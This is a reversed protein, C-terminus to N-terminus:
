YIWYKERHLPVNNWGIKRVAILRLENKTSNVRIMKTSHFSKLSRQEETWGEDTQCTIKRYCRMRGAFGDTIEWLKIPKESVNSNGWSQTKKLAM